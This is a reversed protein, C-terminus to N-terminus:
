RQQELQEIMQKVEALDEQSISQDRVLSLMMSKISGNFLRNAVEHSMQSSVQSREIAPQYLFARGSKGCQRLFGKDELIRVTTMVTTYALERPLQEVIDAIVVPTREWVVNMIEAEAATLM